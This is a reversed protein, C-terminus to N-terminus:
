VESQLTACVHHGIRIQKWATPWNRDEAPVEQCFECHDANWKNWQILRDRAELYDSGKFENVVSEEPDYHRLAVTEPWGRGGSPPFRRTIAFDGFGDLNLEKAIKPGNNFREGEFFDFANLVIKPFDQFEKSLFELNTRSGELETADIMDLLIRDNTAIKQSLTSIVRKQGNTFEEKPVFIRIAVSDFIPKLEYYPSEYERYRPELLGSIVPIDIDDQHELYFSTSDGYETVLAEISESFKNFKTALYTPFDVMLEDRTLAYRFTDLCNTDGEDTIEILPLLAERRTGDTFRSFGSLREFVMRESPGNRIIPVYEM